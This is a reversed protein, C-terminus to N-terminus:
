PATVTFMAVMGHAFHDEGADIHCALQYSGPKDITWELTASKGAEINEVESEKDGSKMPEDKAGGAELVVEHTIKGANEILFKVPGAPVSTKDMEVKYETLKVHVETPSATTKSVVPKDETNGACGYTLLVSIPLLFSLFAFPRKRM